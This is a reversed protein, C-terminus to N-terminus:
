VDDCVADPVQSREHFLSAGCDARVSGDDVSVWRFNRRVATIVDDALGTV